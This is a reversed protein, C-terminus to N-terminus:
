YRWVRRLHTSITSM